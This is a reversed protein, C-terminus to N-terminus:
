LRALNKRLSCKISPSLFSCINSAAFSHQIVKIPGLNKLQRRAEKYDNRACLANGGAILQSSLRKRWVDVYEVLTSAADVAQRLFM